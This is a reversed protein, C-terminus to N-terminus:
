LVCFLVYVVRRVQREIEMRKERIDRRRKNQTFWLSEFWKKRAQPTAVKDRQEIALLRNWEWSEINRLKEEDRESFSSEGSFSDFSQGKVKSSYIDEVDRM